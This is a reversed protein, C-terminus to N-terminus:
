TLEIKSTWLVYVLVNTEVYTCTFMCISLCVSPRVSLCISPRFIFRPACHYVIMLRVFLRASAVSQHVFPRAFCATSGVHICLVSASM